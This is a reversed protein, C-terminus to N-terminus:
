VVCGMLHMKSDNLLAPSNALVQLVAECVHMVSGHQAASLRCAPLLPIHM